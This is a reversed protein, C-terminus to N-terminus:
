LTLMFTVRNAAKKTRVGVIHKGDRLVILMRKDLEEVLSASGPMYGPVYGFPVGSNNNVAPGRGQNNNFNNHRGGGRGSRGGRGGQDHAAPQQQQQQQQQSM